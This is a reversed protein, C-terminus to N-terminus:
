TVTRSWSTLGSMRDPAVVIFGVVLMGVEDGDAFGVRSGVVVVDVGVDGGDIGIGVTVAVRRVVGM